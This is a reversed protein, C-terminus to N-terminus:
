STPWRSSRPPWGSRTTARRPAPSTAPAEHQRATDAPTEELALRPPGSPDPVPAPTVITVEDPADAPEAPVVTYTSDDDTEALEQAATGTTEAPQAQAPDPATLREELDVPLLVRDLGHVLGAGIAAGGRLIRAENAARAAKIDSPDAAGEPQAPRLTLASDTYTVVLRPGSASTMEVPLADERHATGPVVHLGLLHALAVENRPARLRELLGEPLRAFAQDTPAFLTFPAAGVEFEAQTLLDHATDFRELGALDDLATQAALPAALATSLCLPALLRAPAAFM